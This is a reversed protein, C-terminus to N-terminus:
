RMMARALRVFHRIEDETAPRPEASVWDGDQWCVTALDRDAKFERSIVTVTGSTPFSEHFEPATQSYVDETGYHEAPLTEILTKQPAEVLGGGVGCRLRAAWFPEGTTSDILYRQNVLSGAIIRSTFDWPHDHVTSVEKVGQGTDWIHLRHVQDPDLYTRLMGFGQISWERDFPNALAERVASETLNM